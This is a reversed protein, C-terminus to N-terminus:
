RPPTEKRTITLYVRVEGTHSAPHTSTRCIATDGYCKAYYATLYRKQVTVTEAPGILRIALLPRPRHPM